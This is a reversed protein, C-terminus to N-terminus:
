NLSLKEESATVVIKNDKPEENIFFDSLENELYKQIARRLPRAGYQPDFGKKCLFDKAEDSIELVFGMNEVRKKIQNLEVDLIKRISSDSLSNFSVIEDLRNIFEPAFQKQLAKMIIEDSHEQTQKVFGVAHGFEKLQRSGVNSTMIIITNRFDVTRGNGDTLRGDEMVQLLINFVDTHAKEIEDLLIISYPRRRVKETLQGGEDYGVYGPPAGVLRSVTHKEMYESMDVRILAEPTGFMFDALKKALLTKGVGTPGLFMFTGIPRNPDNLGIRSRQISRVLKDVAEEQDIVKANLEERMFKLRKKEEDVMKSVPIGSMSSVVQTIVDETIRVVKKKKSQEERIQQLKSKAELSQDRYSAALEFNQLRIAEEKKRLLDNYEKEAAREAKSVGEVKSKMRAGAEDIIDIAKDPFFRDTIYRDALKVCQVLAEDTYKANHYEEYRPRLNKLILLTEDATPPSVIIKQFRRELAGDKEISKRFEDLTTAGICHIEGKALAPKLINAADMQGSSNGAGIMTHIEDIFLIVNKNERLENILNQIREEFEGRYKSGAVLSALNLSVLHKNKIGDPVNNNAMRQALGEIIATKGVGPEGILIPNNKKRRGLIQVLREIEKERGVVPDLLSQKAQDTINTGYQKIYKGIKSNDESTMSQSASNRGVSITEMEDEDDDCVDDFDEDDASFLVRKIREYNWGIEELLAAIFTNKNATVALLLHKIKVESNGLQVAENVCDRILLNTEVSTRIDNLEHYGSNPNNKRIEAETKEKVYQINSANVSLMELDNNNRERLLGLLLHEPTVITNGLRQAEEHGYNIIRQLSPNLYFELM